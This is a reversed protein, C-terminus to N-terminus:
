KKKAIKATIEPEFGFRNEILDINKIVSAKFVKYCVEMDTLNLNTMINSLLTLVKNGLTHWFFGVRKEDRGLFRSGYVVDANFKFIPNLLVPYEGPDYELDADQIIIIDGSTNELSKRICFGKGMNKENYFIKVREDEINSLLARTGDYSFDDTIIIEINLDKNKEFINQIVKLIYQEENYCPIIVSIKM